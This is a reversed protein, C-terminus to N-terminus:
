TKSIIGQSEMLALPAALILMLILCFALVILLTKIRSKIELRTLKTKKDKKNQRAM